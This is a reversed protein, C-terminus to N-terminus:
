SGSQLVALRISSQFFLSVSIERICWVEQLPRLLVILPSFLAATEICLFFHLEIVFEHKLSRNSSHVFDYLLYVLYTLSEMAHEHVVDLFGLIFNILAINASSFQLLPITTQATLMKFFHPQDFVCICDSRLLNGIWNRQGESLKDSASAISELIRSRRCYILSSRLANRVWRIRLLVVFTVATLFALIFIVIFM